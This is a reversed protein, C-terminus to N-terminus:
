LRQRHRTNRYYFFLLIGLVAGGAISSGIWINKRELKQAQSLILLQKEALEKDKRATRYKIELRNVADLKEKNLLSDKLANYHRAYELAQPYRGDRECIASLVHLAELREEA